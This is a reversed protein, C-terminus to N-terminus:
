STMFRASASIVFPAQNDFRGVRQVQRAIAYASRGHIAGEKGPEDAGREERERKLEAPYDVPRTVREDGDPDECPLVFLAWRVTGAVITERTARIAV